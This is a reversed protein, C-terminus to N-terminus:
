AVRRGDPSLRADLLPAETKMTDCLPAGTPVDWVRAESGGATLLRKGDASFTVVLGAPGDLRAVRRPAPAAVTAADPVPAAVAPLVVATWLAILSTPRLLHTRRM